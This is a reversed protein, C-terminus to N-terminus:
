GAGPFYILKWIDQDIDSLNKEFRKKEIALCALQKARSLGVYMMKLTEIQRKKEKGNVPNLLIQSSVKESEHNYVFSELYLTVDHTHGKVSHITTVHIPFGHYDVYNKNGSEEEKFEIGSSDHISTIFVESENVEQEWFSLFTKCFLRLNGLADEVQGILFLKSIQYIETEFIEYKDGGKEKVRKLCSWKNYYKGNTNRVNELRLIRLLANIINKRLGKFSFGKEPIEYLYSALCSHRVSSYSISSNFESHYRKLCMNEIKEHDRSWAIAKVTFDKDVIIKGEQILENVTNSFFEILQSAAAVDYVFLIPKLGKGRLGNITIQPTLSFANVIRATEETLRHSGNITLVRERDVWDSDESFSESYIAQNKDGIRQLICSDKKDFFLDDILEYQNQSMDQMEDVFVFRFRKKIIDRIRPYKRIYQKTLLYAEDYSIIGKERIENKINLIENYVKGGKALGFKSGDRSTLTEKDLLRAGYFQSEVRFTNKSFYFECSYPMWHSRRYVEDDIAHPKFGYLDVFGPICFFTDVFSQITGVFCPFSFLKPCHAAIKERIEAVAANTHSLVLIGKGDDFPLGGSLLMLKALLVTTKGSGPVAQLDITEFNHIFTRREEDFSHGEPLLIREVFKIEKDTISNM